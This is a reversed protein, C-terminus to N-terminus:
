NADVWHSVEDYRASMPIIKLYSFANAARRKWEDGGYRRQTEM